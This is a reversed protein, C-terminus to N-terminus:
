LFQKPHIHWILPKLVDHPRSYDILAAAGKRFSVEEQCLESVWVSCMPDHGVLFFLDSATKRAAKLAAALSYNMLSETETVGELGLQAALLEATQLARLKPSTLVTMSMEDLYPFTERLQAELHAYYEILATRGEPTLERKFDNHGYEAKGHRVFVLYM